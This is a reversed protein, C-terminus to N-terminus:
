SRCVKRKIFRLPYYFPTRSLISYISPLIFEKFGKFKMYVICYAKLRKAPSKIDSAIGYCHRAFYKMGAERMMLESEPVLDCLFKLLAISGEVWENIRVNFTTSLPHTRLSGKVDQVDIRGFRAALQFEPYVDDWQQYLSNFGGIEKLRKTNFISGCLFMHLKHSFFARIFEETPLGEAINERERLVKGYADIVRTGTRIIGIDHSYRAAKLCVDVFDNDISDDDQLLIFYVGKAQKLCFNWNSRAGINKGHAFYRIRPDTFGKVVAETNDASCNNSAIIEINQYTQRVASELAQKLYHDGRNYTPIAITVLPHLNHTMIV